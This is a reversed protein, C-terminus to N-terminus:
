APLRGGTETVPAAAQEVVRGGAGPGNAAATLRSIRRLAEDRGCCHAGMSVNRTVIAREARLLAWGRRLLFRLPKRSERVDRALRRRFTTLPHNCLCISDALLGLEACAEGIEAAFIGEAVFLPAGKLRFDRSGTRASRALSYDPIRADGDACLTRLAAVAAASNWSQPADWDTGGGAALPPLTPDDGDKYFDDLRLVPLGTRAALRSKGSGSPGTLLIVRAPASSTM